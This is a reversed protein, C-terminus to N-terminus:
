SWIGAFQFCFLSRIAITIRFCFASSFAGFNCYVIWWISNLTCINLKLRYNWKLQSYTCINIERKVKKSENIYLNWEMRNSEKCICKAPATRRSIRRLRLHSAVLSCWSLSWGSHRDRICSLRMESSFDSYRCNIQICNPTLNFCFSCYLKWYIVVSSCCCCFCVKLVEVDSAISRHMWDTLREHQPSAYSSTWESVTVRYNDMAQRNQMSSIHKTSELKQAIGFAIHRHIGISISIGISITNCM